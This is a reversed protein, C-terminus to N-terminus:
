DEGGLRITHNISPSFQVEGLFFEYQGMSCQVSYERNKTARNTM